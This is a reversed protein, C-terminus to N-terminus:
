DLTCVELDQDKKWDRNKKSSCNGEPEPQDVEGAPKGDNILQNLKRKRLQPQEDTGNNRNNNKSFRSGM